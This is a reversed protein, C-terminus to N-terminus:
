FTVKEGDKTGLSGPICEARPDVQPLLVLSPIGEKQAFKAQFEGVAAAAAAM